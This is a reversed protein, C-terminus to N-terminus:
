QELIQRMDIEDDPRLLKMADGVVHLVCQFSFAVAYHVICSKRDDIDLLFRARLRGNAFLLERRSLRSREHRDHLTAVHAACKTDHRPRAPRLTAAANVLDHGFHEGQDRVSHLFDRQKALDNIKVTPMFKWPEVVLTRKHLQEFGDMLDFAQFPKAERRWM